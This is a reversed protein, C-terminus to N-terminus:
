YKKRPTISLHEIPKLHAILQAREPERKKDNKLEDLVKQLNAYHSYKRLAKITLPTETPEPDGYDPITSVTIKVIERITEEVNLQKDIRKSLKEREGEVYGPQSFIYGSNDHEKRSKVKSVRRIFGGPIEAELMPFLKDIEAPSLDSLTLRMRNRGAIWHDPIRYIKDEVAEIIVNALILNLYYGPKDEPDSFDVRLRM